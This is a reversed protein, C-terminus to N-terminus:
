REYGSVLIVGNSRCAVWNARRVPVEDVTVFSDYMYPNYRVMEMQWHPSIWSETASDPRWRGKYPRLNVIDSPYKYYGYIFAHVNKRRTELVKRRQNENVHFYANHLQIEDCHGIVLWRGSVRRQVSILGNNLNRYIRLKM